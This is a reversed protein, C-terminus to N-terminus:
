IKGFYMQSNPKFRNISLVKDIPWENNFRYLIVGPSIGLHHAWQSITMRKGDYELFINRRKNNAQTVISAWRCNKPEYNGNVDIRDISHKVSPRPGVSKYFAYFNENWDDCVVIGRGGYDHYHKNNSNYCRDRMRCWVWYEPSKYMGHKSILEIKRCGCSKTHGKKVNDIMATFEKGCHCKFIAKRHKTSSPAEEIFTLNDGIPDGCKYTFKRKNNNETILCGCSKTNNRNISNVLAIFENGCRCKFVAKRDPTESVTDRLFTCEGVKQGYSYEVKASM